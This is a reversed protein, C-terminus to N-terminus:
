GLDPKQSEIDSSIAEGINQLEAQWSEISVEILLQQDAKIQEKDTAEQELNNLIIDYESMIDNKSALFAEQAARYQITWDNYENTGVELDDRLELVELYPQKENEIEREMENQIFTQDLGLERKIQNIQRSLNLDDMQGQNIAKILGVETQSLTIWGM